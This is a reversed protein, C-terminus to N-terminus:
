RVSFLSSVRAIKADSDLSQGWLTLRYNGTPLDLERSFSGDEALENSEIRMPEGQAAWDESETAKELQYYLGDTFSAARGNLLVKGNTAETGNQPDIIWIPAVISPDRQYESELQFDEFVTANSVGDVLIRVRPAGASSFLGANAAAATSTFVLQQISRQALGEDLKATFVRQPLDLTIVNDSSMSVGIETTPKLFTLWGEKAPTENLLYTLADTVPDGSSLTQAYERYLYVGDNSAQLWYVPILQQDSLTEIEDPVEPLQVETSAATGPMRHEDDEATATCGVAVALALVM